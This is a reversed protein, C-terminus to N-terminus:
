YVTIVGGSALNYFVSVDGLDARGTGPINGESTIGYRITLEIMTPTFGREQMRDFAHGSFERGNVVGPLNRPVPAQPNPFNWQQGARGVPTSASASDGVRTFAADRPSTPTKLGNNTRFTELEAQMKARRVPDREEAIRGMMAM